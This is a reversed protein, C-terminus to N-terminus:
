KSFTIANGTGDKLDCPEGTTPSICLWSFSISDSLNKDASDADVIVSTLKLTEPVGVSRSGGIISAILPTYGIKVQMQDEAKLTQSNMTMSVKVVIKHSSGPEFTFKEFSKTVTPASPLM